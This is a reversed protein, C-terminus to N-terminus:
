CGEDRTVVPRDPVVLNVTALCQVDWEGLVSELAVLREHLDDAVGFEVEAGAGPTGEAVVGDLGLSVEALLGPYSTSALSAVALADAADEPLSAGEEPLADLGTLAVFGEPAQGGLRLVRGEEDVWAVFESGEAMAVAVPERETVGVRVGQPWERVVRASAVWPLEEVRRAVGATDLTLLPRGRTIAAAELVEAESTEGLGTVRVDDVALLPTHALGFAAALVLVPAAVWLWRRRRRRSEDQEVQARRQHMRPDHVVGAPDGPREPSDGM